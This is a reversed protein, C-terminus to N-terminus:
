KSNESYYYKLCVIYKTTKWYVYNRICTKDSIRKSAFIPYLWATLTFFRLASCGRILVFVYLLNQLFECYTLGEKRLVTTVGNRWTLIVIGFFRIQSSIQAKCNSNLFACILFFRAQTFLSMLCAYPFHLDNQLHNYIIAWSWWHSNWCAAKTKYFLFDAVIWSRAVLSSSM